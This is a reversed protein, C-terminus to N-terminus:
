HSLSANLWLRLSIYIVNNMGYLLQTLLILNSKISRSLLILSHWVPTVADDLLVRRRDCLKTVSQIENIRSLFM